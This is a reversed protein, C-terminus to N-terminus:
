PDPPLALVVWSMLAAFVLAAFGAWVVKRSRAYGYVETLIDGFVYSIPFFIVGAGFVLPPLTWDGLTFSGLAVRKAASILNSCLLVTVFAAMVFDYYRYPRETRQAIPVAM